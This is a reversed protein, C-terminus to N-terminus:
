SIHPLLVYLEYLEGVFFSMRKPFFPSHASHFTNKDKVRIVM